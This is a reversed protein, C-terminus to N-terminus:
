NSGQKKPKFVVSPKLEAAYAFGEADPSSRYKNKLNELSGADLARTPCSDVCVPKKGENWRELCLDCKEM